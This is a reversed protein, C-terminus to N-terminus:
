YRGLDDSFIEDWSRDHMRVLLWFGVNIRTGFRSHGGGRGLVSM